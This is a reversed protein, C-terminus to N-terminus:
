GSGQDPWGQEGILPVFAVAELDEHAYDDLAGRTVRLLRQFRHTLGIPMVLRGGIALQDLLAPPVRPGGATVIIAEYPAHEPWGLTGDGHLVHVNRYGLDALRRESAKALRELREVTYVDSVITALVAAAYGSGTGIELARNGPKPQVVETMVAVVYPQSITQNAGIPLPGDDYASERLEEPVFAERPVTRMAHLVWPDSIGRGAIQTDVM